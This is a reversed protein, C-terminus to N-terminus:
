AAPGTGLIVTAHEIVDAATKWMLTVMDGPHYKVLLKTLDGPANVAAGGLSTITDGKVIGAREAATGALVKSVPVMQPSFEVGLFATAGIHVTSSAQKQEIKMGISTATAIPIAFGQASNATTANQAAATDIGIVAGDVNVLSGGSDGPQVDANTQILGSLQESTGNGEDSATISQNLATISGPAVTPKGGLGGANGIAVIPLGVPTKSGSALRATELKTAGKVQLVAIDASEDYGVVTAPYMHGNGIDTVSISSAGNIVHNNTLVLGASTLVIGTGAAETKDYSIDTNIDVLAPDVKAAISTANRPGGAGTSNKNSGTHAPLTVGPGSVGPSVGSAGSVGSPGSAGSSGSTGSAGQSPITLIPAASSTSSSDPLSRGIAVGALAAVLVLLATVAVSISGRRPPGPTWYPDPGGPGWGQPPGGGHSSGSRTSGAPVSWAEVWGPGSQPPWGRPGPAPAGGDGAEDPRASLGATEDPGSPPQDADVHGAPPPRFAAHADKPESPPPPAWGDDPEQPHDTGETEDM